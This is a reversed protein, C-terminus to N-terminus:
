RASTQLPRNTQTPWQHASRYTDTLDSGDPLELQHVAVRDRILGTLAAAATRGANDNDFALILGHEGAAAVLRDAGTQTVLSSALVTATRYGASAAVLGDAVGETVVIPGTGAGGRPFVLSPLTGHRSSPNGYKFPADPAAFRTQVYIIKGTDDFSPYTVGRASQGPAPWDASAGPLGKPRHLIEPGPDYGVKNAILVSDTLGRSRLWDRARAGDPTWLLRACRLAYSTAATSLETPTQQQRIAPPTAMPPHIAVGGVRQELHRVADAVSGGHAAIVADVATGSHGGSWCKWREIGDRSRQM